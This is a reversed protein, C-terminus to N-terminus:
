LLKADQMFQVVRNSHDHIAEKVTGVPMSEPLEVEAKGFM